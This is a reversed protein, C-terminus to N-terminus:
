NLISAFLWLVSANMGFTANQEYILFQISTLNKIYKHYKITSAININIKM